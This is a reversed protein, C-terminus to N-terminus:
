LSAVVMKFHCLPGIRIEDVIQYEQGRGVLGSVAMTTDAERIWCEIELHLLLGM